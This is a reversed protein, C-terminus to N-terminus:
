VIPPNGTTNSPDKSINRSGISDSGYDRGRSRCELNALGTPRAERGAEEPGAFLQARLAEQDQPGAVPRWSDSEAHGHVQANGM